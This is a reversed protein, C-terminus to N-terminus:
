VGARLARCRPSTVERVGQGEVRRRVGSWGCQGGGCDGSVELEKKGRPRQELQERQGCCKEWCQKQRDKSDRSM